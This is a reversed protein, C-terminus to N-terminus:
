PCSRPPANAGVRGRSTSRASAACATSTSSPGSPTRAGGARGRADALEDLFGEDEVHQLFAVVEPHPRIVDAVDLLALGMESTVNHPVSQTLTDAANKEGLWAQLQENLWWTAEMAAMFVQHSRPDFLIRKLEGIDALIFDLLASGSKTRIDRKLAAISAQSREILETVIAPDTEIPDARSWGARRGPGRGPAVPHLRRTRPHDAARGRDASRREGHGGPPRRPEGAFGLARTVDVFLRGGAEYMPAPATLQWVSLGLPKMADTMMQQHGVSVYVHNEGDGAAPIPFLTTIPRSQVFQFGDDVLCWEIDQPRGFHAEIRRGLQALECSRRMTLAPQEQREPRDGTGPGAQRRRGRIALRKTAIVKAVVEGDRV